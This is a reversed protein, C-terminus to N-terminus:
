VKILLDNAKRAFFFFFLVEIIKGFTTMSNSSLASLQTHKNAYIFFLFHFLITGKMASNNRWGGQGM